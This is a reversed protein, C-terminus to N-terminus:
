FNPDQIEPGTGIPSCSLRRKGSATVDRTEVRDSVPHFSLLREIKGNIGDVPDGMGGFRLQLEWSGHVVVIGAWFYGSMSLPCCGV